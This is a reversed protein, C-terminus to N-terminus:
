ILWWMNLRLIVNYFTGMKAAVYRKIGPLKEHARIDHYESSGWIHSRSILSDVTAQLKTSIAEGKVIAAGESNLLLSRPDNNYTGVFSTKSGKLLVAKMHLKGYAAEGGLDTSDLKGFEYIKVQDAISRRVMKGNVNTIGKDLMFEPGMVSDVMIQALLNDSTMISNTVVTFKRNPDALLWKKILRVQRESMWLYPSILVIEEKEEALYKELATVLAKSNQVALRRDRVTIKKSANERYINHFTNVIEVQHDSFGDELLDKRVAEQDANLKLNESVAAAQEDMKALQKDYGRVLGLVTRVMQKNGLHFYILDFYDQVQTGLAATGEVSRRPLGKMMVETDIYTTEDVKPIGYYDNSINRGGIFAIAKSEFAGDILLIKDHSRRNISNAFPALQPLGMWSRFFNETTRVFNRFEGVFVSTLPNFEVIQVQAKQNTVNGNLDLANGANKAAFDILARLPSHPTMGVTGLSDIVFRVNVGRRIAEKLEGFIAMGTEDARVIYYAIDITHKAERIAMIKASLAERPDSLLKVKANVPEAAEKLSSAMRNSQEFWTRFDRAKVFESISFQEPAGIVPAKSGVLKLILNSDHNAGWTAMTKLYTPDVQITTESVDAFVDSCAM